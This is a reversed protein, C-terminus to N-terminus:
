GLLVPDDLGPTQAGAGYSRHHEDVRVADEVLVDLDGVDGLDHGLVQKLATGDGAQHAM